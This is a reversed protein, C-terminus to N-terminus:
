RGYPGYRTASLAFEAANVIYHAIVVVLLSETLVFVAALVMGLLGTVAIGLRGQAGHGAAFLVSSGVALLRPSTDFGVAFAGILIGRFLLEEFGAIVPLVVGLLLVWGRRSDPTLLERLARGPDAGVAEALVGALTNAAAIVVGAGVGVALVEWQSFSATGVGLAAMPVNALAVGAILVAAFLGQSVTLNALLATESVDPSPSPSDSADIADLHGAGDAFEATPSRHRSLTEVHRTSARASLLVVISVLGALTAFAVWRTM